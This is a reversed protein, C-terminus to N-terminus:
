SWSIAERYEIAGSPLVVQDYFNIKGSQRLHHVLLADLALPFGLVLDIEHVHPCATRVWAFVGLAESLVATAEAASGITEPCKVFLVPPAPSRTANWALTAPLQDEKRLFAVTLKSGGAFLNGETRAPLLKPSSESGQTAVRRPSMWAAM